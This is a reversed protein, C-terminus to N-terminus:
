RRIAWFAMDLGPFQGSVHFALGGTKQLEKWFPGKTELAFYTVGAHYPIQRPAVPLAELGIGPLARNVLDRIKEVPGIKIQAPFNRRLAEAPVDANVALVFMAEGLLSRDAITGVKIGYKREELPISIASREFVMSLSQRLIALIPEFTEKLADHRYEPFAPPRKEKASFTALEGTMELLLRYLMEPHLDPLSQLHAVLPEYRNVTQLLLFDAIEAAGGRGSESVRGALGEGRQHLLGELESTFGALKASARCDICPPIFDDDFVVNKDAGVQIIRALGLCLYGSREESELMLRFRMRGVQIEAPAEATGSSDRVESELVGYRLIGNGKGHFDIDMGRADQLPLALFVTANEVEETLDLPAPPDADEPLDFHSGDPMIGSCLTVALKGTQLLDPDIHLQRVGWGYPTFASSCSRILAEFYRDQQQFHQPRLFM